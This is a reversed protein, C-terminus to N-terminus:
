GRGQRMAVSFNAAYGQGAEVVPLILQSGTAGFLGDGENRTRRGTHSAYPERAFVRDSLREDFYFQSTFESAPASGAATRIKFHIHVARGPYWGPYITTFRVHGSADTVQYGRLFQQGRTNFSRDQADSYVGVADCQWIDVLAGALPACAGAGTMRSVSLTLELPAGQKVSGTRPDSRVDSRLLEEDVFYPGEGQAPRVVCGTSGSSASLAQADLRHVMAAVASAGFLAVLERRSLLHGVHRDDDHM